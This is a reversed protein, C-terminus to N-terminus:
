QITEGLTERIWTAHKVSAAIIVSKKPCWVEFSWREGRQLRSCDVNKCEIGYGTTKGDSDKLYASVWPQLIGCQPCQLPLRYGWPQYDKHAWSYKTICDPTFHLINTHRGLRISEKLAHKLAKTFNFGHIVVSQTVKSLLDATNITSLCEVDFALV